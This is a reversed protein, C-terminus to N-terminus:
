EPTSADTHVRLTSFTGDIHITASGEGLVWEGRTSSPLDTKVTWHRHPQVKIRVDSGPLLTLNIDGCNAKLYSDQNAFRGSIDLDGVNFKGIIPGSIAHVAGEACNMRVELPQDPNVALVAKEPNDGRIEVKMGNRDWHDEHESRLEARGVSPDGIIEAPGGLNFTARLADPLKVNQFTAEAGGKRLTGEIVGELKSEISEMAGEMVSEIRQEIGEGFSKWRSRSRSEEEESSVDEDEERRGARAEERHARAEERRAHREERRANAEERRANAEDRRANAEDDEGTAGHDGIENQRVASPDDELHAVAPRHRLKTAEALFIPYGDPDLVIAERTGWPGDSPEQLIPTGCEALLEVTTDLDITELWMEVRTHRAVPGEGVETPYLLLRADGVEYAFKGDSEEVEELRLLEGYFHRAREMDTVYVAVAGIRQVRSM